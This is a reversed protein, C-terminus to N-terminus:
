APLVDDLFDDVAREWALPRELNPYHGAQPIRVVGRGDQVSAVARETMEHHDPFDLDGVIGLVPVTIEALREWSGSVHEPPTVGPRIHTGVFDQHLDSLLDRVGPDVQSLDRDPGAAWDLTAQLWAAVDQRGIAEEAQRLLDLAEPSTFTPENTGAGSIVLARVTDPHELATDVAAGAGMSTGILVAPGLDLHRVLAAVDDCHRFPAMATSSWGHTRADPAVVTTRRALHEIERTYMRHDVYGAHLLLVPPTGAGQQVYAIHGGPVELRQLTLHTTSM